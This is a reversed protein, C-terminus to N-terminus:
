STAATPRMGASTSVTRSTSSSRTCSHWLRVLRPVPPIVPPADANYAELTEARFTEGTTDHETMTM